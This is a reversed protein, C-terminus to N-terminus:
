TLETQAEQGAMLYGDLWKLPLVYAVATVRTGFFRM